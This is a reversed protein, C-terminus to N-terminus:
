ARNRCRKSAMQKTEGNKNAKLKQVREGKAESQYERHKWTIGACEKDKHSKAKPPVKRLRVAEGGLQNLQRTSAVTEM